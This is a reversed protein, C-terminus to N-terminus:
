HSKRRPKGLVRNLDKIMADPREALVRASLRALARYTEQLELSQNRLAKAHLAVTGYDKRSIPGTWTHRAGHQEANDLVQRILPLLARQADRYTFGISVLLQTAGEILGLGLGAVLVAAAHYLIKKQGGNEAAITVPVGGLACALSIATRRAKPAGEVGFVIGELKPDNRGSFSQIPHLSGTAAGLRALPQLVKRDLAGSTHLVIKGRWRKPAIRSLSHALGALEGDPVTLLIVDADTIERTLTSYSRGAGIYRVARHAGDSSRTTVAVIRWGLRRLLRGLTRGVRGAGVISISRSMRLALMAHGPINRPPFQIEGPPQM